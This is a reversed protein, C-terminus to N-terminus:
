NQSFFKLTKQTYEAAYDVIRDSGARAGEEDNAAICRAVAAHLQCVHQLDGFQRFYLYWFRRTEAEIPAIAHAAYKNRATAVVLSNFERDVEVFAHGDNAAAVNEFKIALERFHQREPDHAFRAARGMLVNEIGKRVEIMALQDVLDIQSVYAGSRPVIKVTGEFSLRQLAERIPTRGIGLKNSLSVESIRTGPPLEHTVIMAEIMRYAIRSQPEDPDSVPIQTVVKTHLMVFRSIGGKYRARHRAHLEYSLDPRKKNEGISLDFSNRTLLRSAPNSCQM